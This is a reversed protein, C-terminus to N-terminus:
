GEPSSDSNDPPSNTCFPPFLVGAELAPSAVPLNQVSTHCLNRFNLRITPHSFAQTLYINFCLNNPLNQKSIQALSATVQVLATVILFSFTSLNLHGKALLLSMVQHRSIPSLILAIWLSEWHDRMPLYTSPPAVQQSSFNKKVVQEM